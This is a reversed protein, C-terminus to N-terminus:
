GLAEALSASVGLATLAAGITAARLEYRRSSEEMRPNPQGWGLCLCGPLLTAARGGALRKVAPM